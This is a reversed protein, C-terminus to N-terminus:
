INMKPYTLIKIDYSEQVRIWYAKPIDLFEELKNAINENVNIQGKLLKNYDKITLGLSQAAQQMTIKRHEVEDKIYSGPHIAYKCELQNGDKDIVMYKESQEKARQILTSLSETLNKNKEM